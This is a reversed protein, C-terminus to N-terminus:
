SKQNRMKDYVNYMKIQDHVSYVINNWFRIIQLLMKNKYKYLQVYKM